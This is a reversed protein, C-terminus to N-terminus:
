PSQSSSKDSNSADGSEATGAPDHIRELARREALDLAQFSGKQVERSIPKQIAVSGPPSIRLQVIQHRRRRMIEFRFGFFAYCQGVEPIRRAEHLVLGAVTSYEGHPLRWHYRRNLDRVSVQGDVIFAGDGQRRVGTVPLDHEDVIDGVIEELIDELTVIGLFTGYEDVVHAFHERRQRFSQLQDLLTTTNPIFWPPNAIAQIDLRAPDGGLAALARLLAKAHVVGIINDTDDLYLPLRTYPSALVQAVIEAPDATADIMVVDRRHRMVEEVVLDGLDLVSRLMEKEAQTEEADEGVHLEIAGRLEEEADSLPEKSGQGGMLRLLLNVTRTIAITIPSLVKVVVNIVPSILLAAPEAHRIAYTKPLVEAFILVLFTMMVTAIPVAAEGVLSILVSTALASALINVANNGLLIAGILEEKKERLREVLQARRDGDAARQHMRAKSAATLATESGSFFASMALLLVIALLSLWLDLDSM